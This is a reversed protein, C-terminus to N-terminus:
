SNCFCDFIETPSCESLKLSQTRSWGLPFLLSRPGSGSCGFSYPPHLHYTGMGGIKRVTQRLLGKPMSINRSYFYMMYKATKRAQTVLPWIYQDPTAKTQQQSALFGEQGHAPVKKEIALCSLSRGKSTFAARRKRRNGHKGGKGRTQRCGRFLDLWKLNLKVVQGWSCFTMFGVM